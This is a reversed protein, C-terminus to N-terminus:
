GKWQLWPATNLVHLHCAFVLSPFWFGVRHRSEHRWYPPVDVTVGTVFTYRSFDKLMSSRPHLRSINLIRTKGLRARLILNWPQTGHRQFCRKVFGSTMCGNRGCSDKEDGVQCSPWPWCSSCRRSCLDWSIWGTEHSTLMLGSDCDFVGANNCCMGITFNEKIDRAM